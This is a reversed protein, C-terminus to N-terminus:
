IYPRQCDCCVLNRLDESCENNLINNVTMGFVGSHNINNSRLFIIKTNGISM